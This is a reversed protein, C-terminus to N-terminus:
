PHLNNFIMKFTNWLFFKISGMYFSLCKRLKSHMFWPLNRRCNPWFGNTIQASKHKSVLPEQFKSNGPKVGVVWWICLHGGQLLRGALTYTNTFRSSTTSLFRFHGRVKGVTMHITLTMHFFIWVLFCLFLLSDLLTKLVWIDTFSCSGQLLGNSTLWEFKLIEDCWCIMLSSIEKSKCWTRKYFLLNM